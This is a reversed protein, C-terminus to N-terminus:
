KIRATSGVFVSWTFTVADYNIYTAWATSKYITQMLPIDIIGTQYQTPQKFSTPDITDNKFAGFFSLNYVGIQNSFQSILSTDISYRLMLSNFTDSQTASLLAGYPTNGCHVIVLAVTYVPGATSASFPLVMDGNSLYAQATSDLVTQTGNVLVSPYGQNFIFPRNYTWGGTVPYQSQLKSYGSSWDINGFVFVPLTVKLAAALAAAAINTFVGAAVTFYKISITLNFQDKFAPNGAVNALSVGQSQVPALVADANHFDREFSSVQRNNAGRLRSLLVAQKYTM